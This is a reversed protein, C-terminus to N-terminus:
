VITLKSRVGEYLCNLRLKAHNISSNTYMSNCQIATTTSYASIFTNNVIRMAHNM